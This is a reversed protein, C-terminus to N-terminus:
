MEPMACCRLPVNVRLYALDEDNLPVVKHRQDLKAFICTGPIHYVRDDIDKVMYLHEGAMLGDDDSLVTFNNELDTFTILPPYERDIHQALVELKSKKTAKISLEVDEHPITYMVGARVLLYVKTM